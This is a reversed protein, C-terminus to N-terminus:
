VADGRDPGLRASRPARSALLSSPLYRSYRVSSRRLLGPGCGTRSNVIIVPLAFLCWLLNALVFAAWRDAQERM